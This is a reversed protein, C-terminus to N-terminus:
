RTDERQRGVVHYALLWSWLQFLESASMQMHHIQGDQCRRQHLEPFNLAIAQFNLRLQEKILCRFQSDPHPTRWIARLLGENAIVAQLTTEKNIALSGTHVIVRLSIYLCPRERQSGTFWQQKMNEKIARHDFHECVVSQAHAAADVRGSSIAKANSKKRNTSTGADLCQIDPLHPGGHWEKSYTQLPAM